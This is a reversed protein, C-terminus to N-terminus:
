TVIQKLHMIIITLSLLIITIDKLWVIRDGKKISAILNIIGIVLVIAPLIVLLIDLVMNEEM